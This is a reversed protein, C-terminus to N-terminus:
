LGVVGDLFYFGSVVKFFVEELCGERLVDGVVELKFVKM